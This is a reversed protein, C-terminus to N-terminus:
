PFSVTPITVGHFSGTSNTEIIQQLHDCSRLFEHVRHLRNNRRPDTTDSALNDEGATGEAILSWRHRPNETRRRPTFM